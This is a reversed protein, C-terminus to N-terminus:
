MGLTQVISDVARLEQRAACPTGLTAGAASKSAHARASPLVGALLRNQLRGCGHHQCFDNRRGSKQPKRGWASLEIPKPGRSIESRAAVKKLDKLSDSGDTQNLQDGKEDAVERAVGYHLVKLAQKGLVARHALATQGKVAVGATLTAEGENLYRVGVGLGLDDRVELVPLPDTARDPDALCIGTWWLSRPDTRKGPAAKTRAPRPTRHQSARRGHGKTPKLLAGEGTGEGEKFGPSTAEGDDAHEGRGDCAGADSVGDAEAGQHSAEVGTM